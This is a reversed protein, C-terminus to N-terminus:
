MELHKELNWKKNKNVLVTLIIKMTQFLALINNSLINNINFLKNWKYM